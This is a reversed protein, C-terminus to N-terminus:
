DELKEVKVFVEGKHKETLKITATFEGITKIHGGDLSIFTKDLEIKASDKIKKIIDTETISGYLTGRDSAKVKFNVKMKDLKKLMTDAKEMIEAREKMIEEKKAEYKKVAFDTAHIALKRPFLFNRFFGPKVNKTDGTYGIGPTNKTIIVQM